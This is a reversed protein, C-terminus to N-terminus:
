SIRQALSVTFIGWPDIRQTKKRFGAVSVLQDMEAQSRRRMGWPQGGQHSHLTRAILELQPHWPQNTYLLWGGKEIASALGALSERVEQNDAFLEYLGSVVVLTPKPNLLALDIRNFADGKVFEVMEDLGKSAILARGQKVNFDSYDRLLVSDPPQPLSELTDLIYRGHGAAIDVIRVLTDATRLQKIAVKLLEEIHQKRQRIGRWGISDLYQRDIWRGLAGKGSAKNRYVYDLTSGSDFGSDFGLRIGDSLTSGIRLAMRLSRWYLAKCSAPPLPAALSEAEACSLGYRDATLLSHRREFRREFQHILFRRVRNLAYKRAREGLADHFFGHLLHKEKHSTGLRLFFAEQPARQAVWDTASILLQTPTHIAEANLVVRKATEHMELLLRVSLQQGMLPDQYFSTIRARDHTMFRAGFLRKLLFNGRWQHLLKLLSYAFPFYLRLGFTPSALVLARIKPAFDHVWTAALMAGMGQAVIAMDEVQIDHQQSIHSVFYQLDLVSAALSPSDGQTCPSSGHGRADWAFFDYQPLDLELPLHAMRGGHEFGQHLLLVAQKSKSETHAPWHRYRLQIGDHTIFGRKQEIRM